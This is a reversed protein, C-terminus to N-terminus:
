ENIIKDYKKLRSKIKKINNYEKSTINDDELANDIYKRDEIIQNKIDMLESSIYGGNQLQKRLISNYSGQAGLKVWGSDILRNEGNNGLFGFGAVMIGCAIIGAMINKNM